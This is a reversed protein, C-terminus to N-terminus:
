RGKGAPKATAESLAREVLRKFSRYPQAGSLYYGNILFAPTGNIGADAAVKAEADVEAGHSHSDLSQAFRTPDLGLQGAYGDLSARDLQSQNAFLLDHMKFFGASGQQRYAEMSAEAALHANAHFPLPLHRFVLRVRGGYEKMIQDVTKTVRQCFPCQFDSFEVITVKAAASGRAPADKAAPVTKREPDPATTGDKVLAEYLKSPATGKALQDRARQLEQEIVKDFVDIPQAGAIRRGNVFFVPTGSANLDDALYQDAEIRTKHRHSELASRMKAADLRVDRAIGELDADDLSPSKEFLKDHAAWFGGSGKELHAEVALEAAPMAHKHFHLPNNKWAVRVDKKYKEILAKITPEARKCFSCEFDSFEVITVLANPPGLVPSTGIPVKYITKDAAPDDKADADDADDKAAQRNAATMELYIRDRVTGATTKAAAKEAEADIIERFAEKKQAGELKVGNIFFIPTGNVKLDTALDMDRRIKESWTHKDLGVLVNKGAVGAGQAWASLEGPSVREAEGAPRTKMGAYAAAHFKWFAANGGASFVGQGAEALVQADAHFPLPNNKWVIRLKELGYDAELQKITQEARECFPCQFDAFEVITVPAWRSGWVPDDTGIPIPGESESVQSAAEVTAPKSVDAKQTAQDSARYPASGCGVLVLLASWRLLAKM